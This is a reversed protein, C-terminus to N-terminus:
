QRMRRVADEVVSQAYNMAVGALISRPKFKSLATKPDDQEDEKGAVFAPVEFPFCPTVALNSCSVAVGTRNTKPVDYKCTSCSGCTVDGFKGGCASIGSAGIVRGTVGLNMCVDGIPVDGALTNNAWVGKECGEMAISSKLQFFFFNFKGSLNSKGCYKGTLPMDECTYENATCDFAVEGFLWKNSCSCTVGGNVDDFLGEVINCVYATNREMDQEYRSNSGAGRLASQGEIEYAQATTALAMLPLLLSQKSIM